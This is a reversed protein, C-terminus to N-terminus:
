GNPMIAVTLNQAAPSFNAVTVRGHLNEAGFSERSLVFSGIAYNAIPEADTIVEVRAPPPTAITRYSGFIIRGVHRDASLQALLSAVAAADDPIDSAEVERIASVAAETSRFAGIEHPEPTTVYVRTEADNSQLAAAIRARVNELRSRGSHTRAQMAASNDIIVALPNGGHLICPSAIALVALCLILLELFFIWNLRPRGGFREGRMTRLARFAIVSSVVAQRPRERALYAILLLPPVAFLYLAAPYLLGLGNLLGM